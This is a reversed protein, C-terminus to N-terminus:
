RLGRRLMGRHLRFCANMGETLGSFVQYAPFDPKHPLTQSLRILREVM